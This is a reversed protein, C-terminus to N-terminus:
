GLLELQEQNECNPIFGLRRFQLAITLQMLFVKIRSSLVHALLFPLQCLYHATSPIGALPRALNEIM